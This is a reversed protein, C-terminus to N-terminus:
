MSDDSAEASAHAAHEPSAEIATMGMEAALMPKVMKLVENIQPLGM